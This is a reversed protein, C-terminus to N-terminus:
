ETWGRTIPRRTSTDGVQVLHLHGAAPLQDGAVRAAPGRMLADGVGGVGGGRGRQPCRTALGSRRPRRVPRPGRGPGVVPHEAEVPSTAQHGGRLCWGPSRGRLDGVQGARQLGRGQALRDLTEGLPGPRLGPRILLEQGGAQLALDGGPLGVATLAPDPGGPERGALAELLEVVVM